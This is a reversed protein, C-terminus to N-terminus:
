EAVLVPQARLVGAAVQLQRLVIRLRRWEGGSEVDSLDVESDVIIVQWLYHKNFKIKKLYPLRFLSM